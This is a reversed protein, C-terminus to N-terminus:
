TLPWSMPLACTFQRPIASGRPVSAYTARFKQDRVSFPRAFRCPNKPVEIRDIKIFGVLDLWDGGPVMFVNRNFALALPFYGVTLGRSAARGAEM